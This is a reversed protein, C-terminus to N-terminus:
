TRNLLDIHREIRQLGSDLVMDLEEFTDMRREKREWDEVPDWEPSQEAEAYESDRWLCGDPLTISTVKCDGNFSEYKCGTHCM